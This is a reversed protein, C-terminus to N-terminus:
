VAEFLNSFAARWELARFFACNGLDRRSAAFEPPPVFTDSRPAPEVLATRDPFLELLEVLFPSEGAERGGREQVHWSLTLRKRATELVHHFLLRERRIHVARDELPIGAKRLAQVDADSYVANVPAPQPILGENLGGFFVYDFRLNRVSQTGYVTVAAQPAPPTYETEQLGARLEDVFVAREIVAGPYAEALRALLRRLAELARAERDATEADPLRALAGELHLADLIGEFAEAFAERTTREPLVGDLQDLRRVCDALAGGAREWAERGGIIGADRALKPFVGTQSWTDHFLPSMVVELVAERAWDEWAEFLQRVFVGVASEALRPREMVRVPVGCEAFVARGTAAMDGLRRYVVAVEEPPIGEIALLRKVRRAIMEVEQTPDACPVVALDRALGRTADARPPDRWFVKHAAYARQGCPPPTEFYVPTAGFRHALDHVTTASLAYLDQRDPNPDLNVGIVLRDVHRAATEILRLQSPTFDDFGDLVLVGIDQLIHPRRARCVLEAEWFVGPVDYLGGSKLAEQYAGYVAAVVADMGGTRGAAALRQTFADPEVASQKLQTIVRLVHAAFGGGRREIFGPTEDAALGEICREVLLRREFDDLLRAAKSIQFKLNSIESRLLVPGHAGTGTSAEPARTRPRGHGDADTESGKEIIARAFDNLEL